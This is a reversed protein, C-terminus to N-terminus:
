LHANPNELPVSGIPIYVGNSLSCSAWMFTSVSFELSRQDALQLLPLQSHLGLWTPGPPQSHPSSVAYIWAWPCSFASTRPWDHLCSSLPTFEYKRWTKTKNVGEFSNASVGVCLRGSEQTWRNDDLFVRVPLLTYGSVQVGVAYYPQCTSNVMVLHSM